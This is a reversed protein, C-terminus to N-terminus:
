NEKGFHAKCNCQGSIQQKASGWTDWKEKPVHFHKEGCFCFVNVTGPDPTPIMPPNTWRGIMDTGVQKGSGNYIPHFTYTKDSM